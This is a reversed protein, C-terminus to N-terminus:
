TPVPQTRRRPHRYWPVRDMWSKLAKRYIAVSARLPAVPYRVLLEVARRRTLETRVLALAAAFLPVGDREVVIELTLDAGPPTWSVRYEVDMPLFPSVYLAKATRASEPSVRGDFVYWHRENWPTNTVELVIADLQTEDDNWCYYVALPNFQWGFTRLHALLFIPGTPTRGLRQEVLRRVAPGLPEARGAYFDEARFRVLARRRASWCPLADLSQPLADVDLYPLFLRPAFTRAHSGFRHHAATGEYVALPSM